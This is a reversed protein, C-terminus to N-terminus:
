LLRERYLKLLAATIKESSFLDLARAKAAQGMNQRLQRDKILKLLAQTLATVDGAPVLLGTKGEDVADTIGDIRTAVAPVGCAAAEIIGLGFGERYSPLCFIDASAMYREPQATFLVRRLLEPRAACLKQVETFPFDEEAGVLLLLIDDCVVSLNAFAEALEPIGKDRNLRGLFLIVTQEMSIQIELRVTRRIEVNPKFRNPNVGCISGHELLLAQEPYLVGEAVLFDRQSASDVLVQTAFLVILKDFGKLFGRQLGKKNSWVHGGFSHIRIPVGTLFGALMTLLGTKPMISHVLAFRERRFCIILQIFTVLDRWPSIKREFAIPIFNAPLDDLLGANAPHTILTVSYESAAANIHERLFAHIVAPITATYAIKKM